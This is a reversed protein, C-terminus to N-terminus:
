DEEPSLEISHTAASILEGQIRIRDEAAMRDIVGNVVAVPVRRGAVGRLAERSMGSALPEARHFNEIAEAIKSSLENLIQPSILASGIDTVTKNQIAQRLAERIVDERWGTQAGCEVLELGTEGAADVLLGVVAASDDKANSLKKLLERHAPHETRKQKRAHPLIEEGEDIP